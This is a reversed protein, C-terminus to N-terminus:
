LGVFPSKWRAWRGSYPNFFISFHYSLSDGAGGAMDETSVAHLLTLNWVTDSVRYVEFSFEWWKLLPPPVGVYGLDVLEAFDPPPEGCDQLYMLIASRLPRFFEAAWNVQRIIEFRRHTEADSLPEDLDFVLLPNIFEGILYIYIFPNTFEMGYGSFSGDALDYTITHGPGDVMLELSTCTICTVSDAAKVFDFSWWDFSPMIDVYSSDGPLDPLCIDLYQLWWLQAITDPAEGFDMRYLNLAAYLNNLEVMAWNVQREREDTQYPQTVVKESTCSVILVSLVLPIIINPYKM